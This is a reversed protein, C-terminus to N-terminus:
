PAWFRARVSLAKDDKAPDHWLKLTARSPPRISSLSRDITSSSGASTKVDHCVTDDMMFAATLKPHDWSLTSDNHACMRRTM